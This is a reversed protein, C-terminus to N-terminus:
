RSLPLASGVQREVAGVSRWRRQVPANWPRWFWGVYVRAWCVMLTIGFLVGGVAKRVGNWWVSLALAFCFVAHNSPFSADAAHALHTHGVGLVFPRPLPWGWRIAQGILLGVGIALLAKVALERHYSLGWLWMSLLLLPLLFVLWKAFFISGYLWIPSPDAGANIWLFLTQNFAEM